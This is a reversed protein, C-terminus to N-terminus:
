CHASQSGWFKTMAIVVCVQKPEVTQMWSVFLRSLRADHFKPATLVSIFVDSGNQPLYVEKALALRGHPTSFTDGHIFDNLVIPLVNYGDQLCLRILVVVFILGACLGSLIVILRARLQTM